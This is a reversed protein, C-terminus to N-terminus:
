YRRYFRGIFSAIRMCRYKHLVKRRSNYPAIPFQVNHWYLHEARTPPFGKLASSLFNKSWPKPSSTAHSMTWGGPEFDMGEPGIESIPCGCCMVAISFADQDMYYFISTRGLGGFKGPNVGFETVALEIYASWVKLFEINKRSVGVFGGNLYSRLEFTVKRNTSEILQKWGLRIPHSAPMDNSIVEHVVAVGFSLWTEFFSWKCKIVIDPDFYVIGDADSAPGDLLRLMFDPKYNTFHYKTDLPLFHLKLGDAPELTKSGEWEFSTTPKAADTWAPLKGRYGVYVSGRFGRKYLSNSLAAVGWHYNGEFLTCIAYSM